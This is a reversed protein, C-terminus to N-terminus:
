LVGEGQEEELKWLVANCEDNHVKITSKLLIWTLSNENVM